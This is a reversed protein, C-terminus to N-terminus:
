GMLCLKIKVQKFSHCLVGVVRFSCLFSLSFVYRYKDFSIDDETGAWFRAHSIANLIREDQDELQHTIDNMINLIPPPLGKILKAKTLWLAQKM